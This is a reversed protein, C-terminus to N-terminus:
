LTRFKFLRKIIACFKYSDNHNLYDFPLLTLSTVELCTKSAKNKIGLADM